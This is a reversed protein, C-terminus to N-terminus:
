SLKIGLTVTRKGGSSSFDTTVSNIFYKGDKEPYDPDHLMASDGAQAYPILWTDISGDYGDYSLRQAEIDGRKQMSAMDSTACTIEKKDGGTTGCEYKRVTGNPLIAKVIVQVKRDEKTKYKLDSKEVNYRFDYLRNKGIKEAPAHVYLTSNSIYIDAGSEEQIKKLVDYGTAAHITFKKYLWEYSCSLSLSLGCASIVYGLLTKLQIDKFQKNALGVRFLFLDDECDLTISGDDTKIERLWGKFEELIGYETYGMGISVADGRKLKKEVDLAVNYEAAPLTILATDALLEVSSHITIKDIMGLKYSGVLIDCGMHLM